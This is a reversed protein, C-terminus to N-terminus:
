KILGAKHLAANIVAQVNHVPSTGSKRSASKPSATRRPASEEKAAVREAVGWFALSEASSCIGVDLMYPAATGCADAGSSQIPAGHGMGRVVHYEVLPEGSASTWSMRTRNPSETRQPSRHAVDHVHTWQSVLAEGAAPRVTTDADGHWIAVRPRPGKHPTAEHVLRAWDDGPRQPPQTMAAFASSLNDAAGYPLGAIVAGGAFMEPYTALMAASMAGGASLGTVFVRKADLSETKVVHRVMQAISGAEGNDRTIDGRLFWSFCVNPNNASIQEPCLVAFGHRDALALWGANDAYSEARQSCGHLVVVLPAKRKLAPPVYLLARLAGPNDGFSEVLSMRKPERLPVHAANRARLAAITETLNPM